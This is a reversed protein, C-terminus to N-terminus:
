ILEEQVTAKRALARYRMTLYIATVAGLATFVKVPDLRMLSTNVYVDSSSLAVLSAGVAINLQMAASSTLDILTFARVRHSPQVVEYEVTSLTLAFASKTMQFSLVLVAFIVSGLDKGRVEPFFTWIIMEVSLTVGVFGLARSPGVKSVFWGSVPTIALSVVSRLSLVLGVVFASVELVTLAYVSMLPVGILFQAAAAFYILRYDPDNLVDRWKRFPELTGTEPRHQSEPLRRYVIMSGLLYLLCYILIGHYLAGTIRGDFAFTQIMFAAMVTAQAWFRMSALFLPREESGTFEALWASWAAGFSISIGIEALTSGIVLAAALANRDTQWFVSGVLLLAVATAVTIAGYNMIRRYGVRDALSPALLQIPISILMSLAVISVLNPSFGLTDVVYIQFIDASMGGTASSLLIIGSAPLLANRTVANPGFIARM